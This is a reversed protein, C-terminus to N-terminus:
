LGLGRRLAAAVTEQVQKKTAKLAPVLFPRAAMKSTGLELFLGYFANKNPGIVVALEGPKEGKPESIVINAALNGTRRPARRSAEERVIEAGAVIADKAIALGKDGLKELQRKLEEGGEITVTFRGAM